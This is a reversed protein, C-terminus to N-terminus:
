LMDKGIHRQFPIHKKGKGELISSLFVHLYTFLFYPQRGSDAQLSNHCHYATIVWCIGGPVSQIELSILTEAIFLACVGALFGALFRWFNDRCCSWVFVAPVPLMTIDLPFHRLFILISMVTLPTPLPRELLEQCLMSFCIERSRWLSRPLHPHSSSAPLGCSSSLVFNYIWEKPLKESHSKANYCSSSSNHYLEFKCLDTYIDTCFDYNM